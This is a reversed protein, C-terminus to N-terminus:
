TLPTDFERPGDWYAMGATLQAVDGFGVHALFHSADASRVGHECIVVTKQEPNLSPLAAQLEYIPILKSGPIHGLQLYEQPSRVDLLLLDPHEAILKKLEENELNRVAM